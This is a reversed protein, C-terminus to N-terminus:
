VVFQCMNFSKNGIIILLLKLFLDNKARYIREHSIGHLSHAENPGFARTPFLSSVKM